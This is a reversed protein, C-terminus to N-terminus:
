ECTLTRSMCSSWLTRRRFSRHSGIPPPQSSRCRAGWSAASTANGTRRDTPPVRGSPPALTQVRHQAATTRSPIRGDPPDVILSTRGQALGGPEWWDANLQLDRERGIAAHRQTLYAAAEEPTLVIKDALAAPRQLPTTTRYEWYGSLDPVGWATRPVDPTQAVASTSILLLLSVLCVRMSMGRRAHRPAATRASGCAASGRM